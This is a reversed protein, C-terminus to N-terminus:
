STIKKTYMKRYNM